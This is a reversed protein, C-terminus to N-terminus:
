IDGLHGRWGGNCVVLLKIVFFLAHIHERRKFRLKSELDWSKLSHRM